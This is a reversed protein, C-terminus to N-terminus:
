RQSTYEPDPGDDFTLAVGGSYQRKWSGIGLRHLFLDPILTYLLAALILVVGIIWGSM